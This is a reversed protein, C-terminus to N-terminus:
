MDLATCCWINGWFQTHDKKVNLNLNVLELPLTFLLLDAPGDRDFLRDTNETLIIQINTVDVFSNIMTAWNIAIAHVIRPALCICIGCYWKGELPNINSSYCNNDDCGPPM